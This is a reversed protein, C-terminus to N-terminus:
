QRGPKDVQRSAQWGTGEGNGWYVVKQRQRKSTGAIDLVEHLVRAVGALEASSDEDMAAMHATSLRFHRCLGPPPTASGFLRGKEVLRCM